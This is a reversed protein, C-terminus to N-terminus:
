QGCVLSLYSFKIKMDTFSINIDIIYTFKEREETETNSLTMDHTHAFVYWRPRYRRNAEQVSGSLFRRRNGATHEYRAYPMTHAICVCRFHVQVCLSVRVCVALPLALPIENMARANRESVINYPHTRAFTYKYPHWVCYLLSFRAGCHRAYEM